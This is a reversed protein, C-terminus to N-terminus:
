LIGPKEVKKKRKWWVSKKERAPHGDEDAQKGLMATLISSDKQFQTTMYMYQTNLNDFASLPTMSAALLPWLSVDSSIAARLAL